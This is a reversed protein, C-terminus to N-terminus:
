NPIKMRIRQVCERLKVCYGHFGASENIWAKAVVVCEEPSWIPRRRDGAKGEDGAQSSESVVGKGQGEEEVEM